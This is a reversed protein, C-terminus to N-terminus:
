AIRRGESLILELLRAPDRERSLARGIETLQHIRDDSRRLERSGAIAIMRERRYREALSLLARWADDQAGDVIQLDFAQCDRAATVVLANPYRKRLADADVRGVVLAVDDPADVVDANSHVSWGLARATGVLARPCPGDHVIAPPRGPAM